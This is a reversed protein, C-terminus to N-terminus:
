EKEFKLLSPNVTLMLQVLQAIASGLLAGSMGYNLYVLITSIITNILAGTLLIKIVTKEQHNKFLEVIKIGYIFSPYVYLFAISYFWFSLQTKLYFVTILHMFLLGIPVLFLGLVCLQKQIKDVTTKNNRYINKTFPAYIFAAVSMAFVLLSNLIQYNAVITRNEFYDIIYVDIKSTFFGLISLIFFPFAQKFYSIDMKMNEASLYKQFLLFYGTGRIFQYFSYNVLLSYIGFDDKLLYFPLLFVLFSATEILISTNFKKEYIVLAETSHNFYRGLTWIFIYFTYSLPFLLISGLTFLFVLPLRTYLIRSYNKKIKNPLLSFLRLLYEKNGWNIIQVAFLTYLLISVFSGWIEKQSFHIVLFPIAMGFVSVILQRITNGSIHVIRNRDKTRM